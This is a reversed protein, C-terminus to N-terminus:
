GSRLRHAMELEFSSNERNELYARQTEELKKRRRFEKYELDRVYNWIHYYDWESIRFGATHLDLIYDAVEPYRESFKELEVLDYRTPRKTFSYQYDHEHVLYMGVTMVFVSVVWGMAYLISVTIDTGIVVLTYVFGIMGLMLSLCGFYIPYNM